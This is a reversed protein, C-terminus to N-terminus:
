AYKISARQMPKLMVATCGVVLLRVFSLFGSYSHDSDCYLNLKHHICLRIQVASLILFEYQTHQQRVDTYKM